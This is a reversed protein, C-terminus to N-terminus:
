MLKLVADADEITMSNSYTLWYYDNTNFAGYYRVIGNSLTAKKTCLVHYSAPRASVYTASVAEVEGSYLLLKYNAPITVSWKGSEYTASPPLPKSTAPPTPTAIAGNSTTNTVNAGGSVTTWCVYNTGNIYTLTYSSLYTYTENAGRAVNITSSAPDLILIDSESLRSRNCSAKYGIAVVFHASGPTGNVGVVVPRGLDVNNCITELLTQKSKMNASQSVYGAASPAKAQSGTWYDFYTHSQNELIIRCYAWCYAQCPGSFAQHGCSNIKEWPVSVIVNEQSAAYAPVSAIPIMTFFMLVALIVAVQKKM